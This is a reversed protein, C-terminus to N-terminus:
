CSHSTLGAAPASPMCGPALTRCPSADPALGNLAQLKVVARIRSVSACRLGNVEVFEEHLPFPPELTFASPDPARFLQQPRRPFPTKITDGPTNPPLVVTHTGAVQLLCALRGRDRCTLRVTNRVASGPRCHQCDV